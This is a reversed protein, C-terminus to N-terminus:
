ELQKFCLSPDELILRFTMEISQLQKQWSIQGNDGEENQETKSQSSSAAATQFPYMRSFVDPTRIAEPCAALLKEADEWMSQSGNYGGDVYLHLPLRGAKTRVRASEPYLYLLYDIMSCKLQKTNWRVLQPITLAPISTDISCSKYFDNYSSPSVHEIGGCALHLPLLGLYDEQLLALNMQQRPDLTNETGTQTLNDRVMIASAVLAIAPFNFYKTVLVAAHIPKWESVEIMSVYYPLNCTLSDTAAATIFKAAAQILVLMRDWFYYKCHVTLSLPSPLGDENSNQVPSHVMMSKLARIILEDQNSSPEDEAQNTNSDSDSEDLDVDNDSSGDDSDAEHNGIRGHLDVYWIILDDIPLRGYSNRVLVSRPHGISSTLLSLMPANAGNSCAFHLPLDGENDQIMLPHPELHNIHQNYSSDSDYKQKLRDLM